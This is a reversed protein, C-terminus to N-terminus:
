SEVERAFVVRIGATAKTQVFQAETAGQGAYEGVFFVDSGTRGCCPPIITASGGASAPIIQRM